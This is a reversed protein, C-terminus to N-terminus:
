ACNKYKRPYYHLTHLAYWKIKVVLNSKGGCFSYISVRGGILDPVLKAPIVSFAKTHVLKAPIVVMM